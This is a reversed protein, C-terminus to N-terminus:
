CNNQSDVLRDEKWQGVLIDGGKKTKESKGDFFGEILDGTQVGEDADIYM